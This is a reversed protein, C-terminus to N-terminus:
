LHCGITQKLEDPIDPTMQSVCEDTQVAMEAFAFASPHSDATHGMPIAKLFGMTDQDIVCSVESTGREAQVAQVLSDANPHKVDLPRIIEGNM